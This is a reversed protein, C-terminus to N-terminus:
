LYLKGAELGTRPVMLAIAAGYAAPFGTKCGEMDAKRCKAYKWM